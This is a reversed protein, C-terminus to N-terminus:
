ARRKGGVWVGRELLQEPNVRCDVDIMEGVSNYPQRARVAEDILERVRQRQERTWPPPQHGNAAVVPRRPLPPPLARFTLLYSAL